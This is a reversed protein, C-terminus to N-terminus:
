HNYTFERSSIIAWVLGEMESQRRDPHDALVQLLSRKEIATPARCLAAMYFEELVAEDSAGSSLMKALRGRRSIKSTYTEGAIMHLAQSLNPQPAGSPPTKRMSRGFADMFQSPCVDPIMQVARAAPEPDGGGAMWHYRFDEPVGTASSIADLLVAAELTTAARSYNIRDDLNTENPTGSM